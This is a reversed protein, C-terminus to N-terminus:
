GHGQIFKTREPKPSLARRRAPLCCPGGKQRRAGLARVLARVHPVLLVGFGGRVPPRESEEKPPIERVGVM